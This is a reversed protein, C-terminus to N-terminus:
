SAFKSEDIVAFSSFFTRTPRALEQAPVFHQLKNEISYQTKESSEKLEISDEVMDETITLEM